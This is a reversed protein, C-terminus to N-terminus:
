SGPNNERTNKEGEPGRRQVMRQYAEVRAAIRRLQSCEAAAGTFDKERMRAVWLLLHTPFEKSVFVVVEAISTDRQWERRASLTPQEPL